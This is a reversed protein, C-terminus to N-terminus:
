ELQRRAREYEVQLEDCLRNIDALLRTTRCRARAPRGPAAAPVLRGCATEVLTEWGEPPEHDSDMEIFGVLRTPTPRATM